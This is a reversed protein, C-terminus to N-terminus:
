KSNRPISLDYRTKIRAKDSVLANVGLLDPDNQFMMLEERIAQFARICRGTAQFVRYSFGKVFTNWHFPLKGGM